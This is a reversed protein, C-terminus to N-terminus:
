PTFELAQMKQIADEIQMAKREAEARIKAQEKRLKAIADPALDAPKLDPIDFDVEQECVVPGWHESMNLKAVHYQIGGEMYHNLQAYLYVKMKM